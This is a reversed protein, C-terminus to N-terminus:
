KQPKGSLPLIIQFSTGKGPKSRVHIDGGHNQTIKKCLALGIGNGGFEKSQELRYFFTFIKNAYKQDFGIGNDKVWIEAYSQRKDTYGLSRYKDVALVDGSIEIHPQQNTFKLANSILNYFLQGIQYPIGVVKPLDAVIIRANKERILLEFDELLQNVTKNLDIPVSGEEDTSLRSYQLVNRILSSMRAASSSIKGLYEETKQADNGRAQILSIFTQIKRLPEQLDHSAIYAFQELDSNSKSLALTRDRVKQELELAINRESTTERTIAILRKTQGAKEPVSRANTKIWHVSKDPWHIRVEFECSTGGKVQRLAEDFIVCDTEDVAMRMKEINLIQKETLGFIEPLKGSYVITESDMELEWAAMNAGDLALDLRIESDALEKEAKRLDTIDLMSSIMRIPQGEQDRVIYARDSITHYFNHQDRFRYQYTWREDGHEVARASSAIVPAIDDPHIKDLLFNRNFDGSINEYGFLRSFNESVWVTDEKIRWDILADNTVNSVLRFREESEGLEQTRLQVLYELDRNLNKLKEKTILLESYNEKLREEANRRATIDNLTLTVGDMMKVANVDFCRDGLTLETQLPQGQEIVSELKGQLKEALYADLEKLSIKTETLNRKFLISAYRNGTLTVVEVLKNKDDRLASLAIIANNSSEFTAAILSSLEKYRTIDVFSM